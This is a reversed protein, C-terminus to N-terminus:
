GHPVRKGRLGASYGFKQFRKQVVSISTDYEDAVAKLTGLKLYLKFMNNTEPGSTDPVIKRKNLSTIMRRRREFIEEEGTTALYMDIVQEETKRLSGVLVFQDVPIIEKLKPM